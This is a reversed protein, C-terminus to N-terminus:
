PEYAGSAFKTNCKKCQWIGTALRKIGQKKCYPCLHNKRQKKEIDIFRQRVRKGYRAGFKGAQRVKKTRGM